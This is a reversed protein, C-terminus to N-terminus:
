KRIGYCCIVASGELGAWAMYEPRTFIWNCSEPHRSRRISEHKQEAIVPSLLGLM